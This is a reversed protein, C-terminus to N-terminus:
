LFVVGFNYPFVPSCFIFTLTFTFKQHSAATQRSVHQCWIEESHTFTNGTLIVDRIRHKELVFSIVIKNADSKFGTKQFTLASFGKLFKTPRKLEEEVVRFLPELVIDLPVRIKLMKFSLTQSRNHGRLPRNNYCYPATLLSTFKM